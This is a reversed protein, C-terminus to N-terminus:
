EQRDGSKEEGEQEIDCRAKLIDISTKALLLGQPDHDALYKAKQVMERIENKEREEM